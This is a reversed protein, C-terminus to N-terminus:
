AAEGISTQEALARERTRVTNWRFSGPHRAERRLAWTVSRGIAEKLFAGGRGGLAISRPTDDGRVPQYVGATRGVSVCKAIFGSSVPRPVTGAVRHMITQAAQAGLPMAAQCSMRMPLGSPDAADGAAVIRVDDVSTLTEDTLLRGASDTTLGSRRALDPVGFGATWITVASPLVRGCALTVSDGAVSTVVNKEGDLVTVGLDALASAARRRGADSLYPGLQEGAVLTVSRGAAALEGAVEIGTPGAGVVTVAAGPGAADLVTHLRDTDELSSLPLAHEGAGPVDSTASSSGVAYVLYDYRLTAGAGTTVTRSRADIGEVTDVLLRIRPNLVEAFDLVAEGTGALRQHLRIREVFQARPNVLTVQIDERLMLRNAAIVGAYGGGVVLVKTMM